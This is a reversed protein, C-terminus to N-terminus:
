WTSPPASEGHLAYTRFIQADRLQHLAKGGLVNGLHHKRGIRFMSPSVVAAYRARRMLGSPMVTVRGALPSGTPPSRSNASSTVSPRANSALRGSYVACGDQAGDSTRPRGDADRIAISGEFATRRGQVRARKKAQMGCRAHKPSKTKAQMWIPRAEVAQNEGADMDPTSRRSPDSLGLATVQM